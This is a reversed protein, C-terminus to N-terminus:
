IAHLSGPCLVVIALALLIFSIHINGYISGVINYAEVVAQALGTKSQCLCKIEVWRWSVNCLLFGHQNQRRLWSKMWLQYKKNKETESFM